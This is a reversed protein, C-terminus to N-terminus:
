SNFNEIENKLPVEIEWLIENFRDLLQNGKNKVRGFFLDDRLTMTMQYIKDAKKLMDEKTVM